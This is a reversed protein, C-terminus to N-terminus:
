PGSTAPSQIPRLFSRDAQFDSGPGGIRLGNRNEARYVLESAMGHRQHPAELSFRGSPPHPAPAYLFLRLQQAEVRDRSSCCQQSGAPRYFYIGHSLLSPTFTSQTEFDAGETTMSVAEFYIRSGGRWWQFCIPNPGHWRSRSQVVSRYCTM